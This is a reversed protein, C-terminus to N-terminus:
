GKRAALSAAQLGIVVPPPTGTLEAIQADIVALQRRYEVMADERRPDSRERDVVHLAVLCMTRRMNLDYMNKTM